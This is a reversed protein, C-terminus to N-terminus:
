GRACGSDLAGTPKDRNAGSSCVSDVETCIIEQVHQFTECLTLVVNSVLVGGVGGIIDGFSQFSAREAWLCLAIVSVVSVNLNEVCLIVDRM